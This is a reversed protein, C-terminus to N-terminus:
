HRRGHEIECSKPLVFIPKDLARAITHIYRAYKLYRYRMACIEPRRPLAIIRFPGSVAAQFVAGLKDVVMENMASNESVDLRKGSGDELANEFSTALESSFAALQEINLFIAKIDLPSLVHDGDLTASRRTHTAESSKGKEALSSRKNSTMSMSSARGSDSTTGTSSDTLGSVHMGTNTRLPNESSNASTGVTEFTYATNRSDPSLRGNKSPGTSVTSHQSSPRLRYLYADRVLALDHAYVRETDLIENILHTRKSIRSSGNASLNGPSATAAAPSSPNSRSLAYLTDPRSSTAPSSHGAGTKVRNV